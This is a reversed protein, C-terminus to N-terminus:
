KVFVVQDSWIIMKVPQPNDWIPSANKQAAKIEFAFVAELLKWRKVKIV